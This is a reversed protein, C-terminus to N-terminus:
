KEALSITKLAKVVVDRIKKEDGKKYGVHYLRITGTGDIVVNTPLVMAKFATAIERKKDIIIPYPIEYNLGQIFKIVRRMGFSDMNIGLVILGKDKFENYIEILRPMEEICSSCYISWFDLLVVKKGLLDSFSIKNNNLDVGSFDPAKAGEEVKGKGKGGFGFFAQGPQGFCVALFAVFVVTSVIKRPTM